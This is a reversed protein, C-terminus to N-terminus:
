DHVGDVVDGITKAVLAGDGEKGDKDESGKGREVVAGEVGGRGLDGHKFVGPLGEVACGEGAVGWGPGEVDFGVEELELGRTEFGEAVAAGVEVGGSFLGEVGAHGIEALTVGPELGIALGDRGGTEDWGGVDVDGAAVCAVVDVSAGVRVGDLGEGWAAGGAVRVLIRGIDKSEQNDDECPIKVATSKMRLVSEGFCRWGLRM